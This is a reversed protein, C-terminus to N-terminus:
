RAIGDSRTALPLSTDYPVGLYLLTRRLVAAATPAAVTGGAQEPGTPEDAMVLVLVKPHHAPAGAIFSVVHRDHSFRGSEVDFKQATGTKGFVTFEKLSAAKGTGRRVVEAMAEGVVWQSSEPSTVQSKVQPPRDDGINTAESGVFDADVDKLVLRPSVLRGRNALAAHAAILQLPTVAIEHGMPVSGLSYDNWLRLPRVVGAEEGPLSTGTLRGFGFATVCRHLEAVGLREGIKAMGINSSKVLVETVSLQDYGHHDHLIRRGVRYVGRECDIMEDARLVGADIAWAVVLPKFTSGPEYVATVARNTWADPVAVSPENPDFTPRSAVALLDSSEVDIVVVCAGQPAHKAMLADLEQEAFLQVVADIALVITRGAAPLETLEHRVDVVRGRADRLTVRKGARGRLLEDYRQEVGGRGIGDVDRLGLVHAAVVGQPYHRLFEDRFGWTGRPLDLSRIAEAQSESLRRRVWLFSKDQNRRLDAALREGDSGIAESIRAAFGEADDIANPVVYLSPATVSVALLRGNRDVIEGPRAPLAEVHLRQRAARDAFGQRDVVQLQVLRVALAAFAVALLTVAVRLRHPGNM